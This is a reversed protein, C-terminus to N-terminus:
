LKVEAEGPRELPHQDEYQVGWVQVTYTGAPLGAIDAQLEYGCMCRCVQGVNTEVIKIVQGEVQIQADIKACCVYNINQTVKVAGDAVAIDVKAWDKLKDPTIDQRCEGVTYTLQPNVALPRVTAPRACGALLLVIMACGLCARRMLAIREPRPVPTQHRFLM